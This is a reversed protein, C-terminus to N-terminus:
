RRSGPAAPRAGADVHVGLRGGDLGGRRADERVGVAPPLAALAHRDPHRGPEEGGAGAVHEGGRGVALRPEHAVLEPEGVAAVGERPAGEAVRVREVVAVRRQEVVAVAVPDQEAREAHLERRVVRGLQDRRDAGEVAKAVVELAADVEAEVLVRHLHGLLRHQPLADIRGAVRRWPPGVAVVLVRHRVVVDLVEVVEAVVRGVAAVEGAVGAARADRRREVVDRRAVGLVAGLQGLLGLLDVLVQM